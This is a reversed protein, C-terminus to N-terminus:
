ANGGFGPAPDAGAPALLRDAAQAFV